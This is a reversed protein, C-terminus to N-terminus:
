HAFLTAYNAAVFGSIDRLLRSLAPVLRGHEAPPCFGFLCCHRELQTHRMQAALTPSHRLGEAIPLVEISFGSDAWLVPQAKCRFYNKKRSRSYIVRPHVGSWDQVYMIGYFFFFSARNKFLCAPKWQSNVWSYFVFFAAIDVFAAYKIRSLHEWEKSGSYNISFYYYWVDWKLPVWM